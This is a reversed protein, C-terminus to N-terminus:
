FFSKQLNSKELPAGAINHWSAFDRSASTHMAKRQEANADSNRATNRLERPLHHLYAIQANRHLIYGTSNRSTHFPIRQCLSLIIYVASLQSHSGALLYVQCNGDIILRGWRDLVVTGVPIFGSVAKRFSIFVILPNEAV